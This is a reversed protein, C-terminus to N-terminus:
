AIIKGMGYLEKILYVMQKLNSIIESAIKEDAISIFVYDYDVDGISEVNDVPLGEERLTYFQKDVWKVIEAYKGEKFQQYYRKGINGAGYLVIRSQPPLLYFPCPYLTNTYVQNKGLLTEVRYQATPLFESINGKEEDSLNYVYMNRMTRM